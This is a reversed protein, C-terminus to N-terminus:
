RLIGISMLRTPECADALPGASQDVPVTRISGSNSRDSGALTLPALTVNSGPARVACGGARGSKQDDGASAAPRL